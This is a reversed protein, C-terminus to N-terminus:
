SVAVSLIVAGELTVEQSPKPRSNPSAALEMGAQVGQQAQPITLLTHTITVTDNAAAVTQLVTEYTQTQTALVISESDVLQSVQASTASLIVFDKTTPFVDPTVSLTTDSDIATIVASTNDDTNYAYDGIRIGDSEFTAGAEVLKGATTATTQGTALQDAIPLKLYKSM